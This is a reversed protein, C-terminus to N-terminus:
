TLEEPYFREILHLVGLEEAFTLADDSLLHRPVRRFASHHRNHCDFCLPLCNRVDWLAAPDKTQVLIHQRYLIHHGATAKRKTCVACPKGNWAERWKRTPKANKARKIKRVRPTDSAWRVHVPM